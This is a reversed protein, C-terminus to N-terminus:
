LTEPKYIKIKKIDTKSKKFAELILTEFIKILERTKEYNAPVREGSKFKDITVPKYGGNENSKQKVREYLGIYNDCAKFCGKLEILLEEM